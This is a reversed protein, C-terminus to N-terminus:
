DVEYRAGEKLEDGLNPLTKKAVELMRQELEDQTHMDKGSINLKRIVEIIAQIVDTRSLKKGTSFLADKSIKDIYDIQERTLFAIVRGVHKAGQSIEVFRSPRKNTNTRGNTM